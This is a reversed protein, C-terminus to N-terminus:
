TCLTSFSSSREEELSFFNYSPLFLFGCQFWIGPRTTTILSISVLTQNVGQNWQVGLENQFMYKTPIPYTRQVLISLLQNMISLCQYGVLMSEVYGLIGVLMQTIILVLKTSSFPVITVYNRKDCHILVWQCVM